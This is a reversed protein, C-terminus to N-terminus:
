GRTRRVARHRAALLGVLGTGLLILSGPEPTVLQSSALPGELSFWDNAGNALGSAAAALNGFNVTGSDKTVTVTHINSFTVAVQGVFNGTGVGHAYGTSDAATWNTACNIFTCAGDGDFDFAGEGSAATFSISRLLSGSSNVIGILTDESSDYPGQDPGAIQVSWSTAAGVNNVNFVTILLECGNTDAGVTPCQTFSAASAFAAAGLICSAIRFFRNM